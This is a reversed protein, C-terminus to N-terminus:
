PTPLVMSTEASSGPSYRTRTVTISATVFVDIVRSAASRIM